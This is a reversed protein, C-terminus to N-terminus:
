VAQQVLGTGARKMQSLWHDGVHDNFHDVVIRVHELPVRKMRKDHHGVMNM